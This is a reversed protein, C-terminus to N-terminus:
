EKIELELLSFGIMMDREEDYVGDEKGYIDTNLQKCINEAKEKNLIVGREKEIDHDIWYGTLDDPGSWTIIYVKNM